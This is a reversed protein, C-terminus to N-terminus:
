TSNVSVIKNDLMEIEVKSITGAKNVDIEGTMNAKTSRYVENVGEETDFKLNVERGAINITNASSPIRVMVYKRAGEGLAYVEDVSNAVTSVFDEAQVLTTDRGINKGSFVMVSALIVLVLSTLIMFELSSQGKNKGSKKQM